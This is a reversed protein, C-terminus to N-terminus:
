KHFYGTNMSGDATFSELRLLTMFHPLMIYFSFFLIFFRADSLFRCWHIHLRVIERKLSPKYIRQWISLYLYITNRLNREEAKKSCNM